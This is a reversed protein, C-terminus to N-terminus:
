QAIQGVGTADMIDYKLISKAITRRSTNGIGIPRVGHSKDFAILRSAMLPAVIVPDVYVPVCDVLLVHFLM